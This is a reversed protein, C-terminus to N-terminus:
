KQNSLCFGVKEGLGELVIDVKLPRMASNGSM